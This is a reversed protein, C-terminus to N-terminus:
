MPSPSWYVGIEAKSFVRNWLQVKLRTVLVQRRIQTLCAFVPNALANSPDGGYRWKITAVHKTNRINLEINKKRHLSTPILKQKIKLQFITSDYFIFQLAFSTNPKGSCVRKECVKCPVIRKECPIFRKECSIIHKKCLLFRKECLVIRKKCLVSRKEYPVIRKKCSVIHKECSVIRKEFPLFCKFNRVRYSVSRVRYHHSLRVSKQHLLGNWPRYTYFLEITDLFSCSRSMRIILHRPLTTTLARVEWWHPGSEIRTIPLPQIHSPIITARESVHTEEPYEPKRGCWSWWYRWCRHLSGM